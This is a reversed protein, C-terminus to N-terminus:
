RRRLLVAVEDDGAGVVLLLALGQVAQGARQEGVHDLAHGVAVLLRQLDLADAVLGLLLALVEHQRDAVGVLDRM